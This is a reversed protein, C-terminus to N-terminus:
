TTFQILLLEQYGMFLTSFNTSFNESTRIYKKHIRKRFSFFFVFIEPRNLVLCFYFSVLFQCYNCLSIAFLLVTLKFYLIVEMFVQMRVMDFIYIEGQQLHTNM